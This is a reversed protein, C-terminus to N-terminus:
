FASSNKAHFLHPSIERKAEAIKVRPQNKHLLFSAPRTDYLPADPNVTPKHIAWRPATTFSTQKAPERVCSEVRTEYCAPGPTSMIDSRDMTLTSNIGHQTASFRPTHMSSTAIRYSRTAKKNSQSITGTMQDALDEKTMDATSSAPETGRRARM